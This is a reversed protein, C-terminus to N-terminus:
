GAKMDEKNRAIEPLVKTVIEMNKEAEKTTVLRKTLPRHTNQYRTQAEEAMDM